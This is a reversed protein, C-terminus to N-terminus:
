ALSHWVIVVNMHLKEALEAHLEPLSICLVARLFGQKSLGRQPVPKIARAYADHLISALKNAKPKTIKEMRPDARHIMLDPPM